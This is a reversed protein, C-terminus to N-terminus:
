SHGNIAQNQQPPAPAPGCAARRKKLLLIIGFVLWMLWLSKMLLLPQGGLFFSGCVLAAMIFLFVLGFDAGIRILISKKRRVTINRRDMAKGAFFWLFPIFVASISHILLERQAGTPQPEFAYHVPISILAAPWTIPVNLGDALQELYPQDFADVDEMSFHSMGVSGRLEPAPSRDM